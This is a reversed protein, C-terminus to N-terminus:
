VVAPLPERWRARRLEAPMRQVALARSATEFVLWDRADRHELVHELDGALGRLEKEEVRRIAAAALVDDDHVLPSPTDEGDRARTRLRATAQEAKEELAAEELLPM